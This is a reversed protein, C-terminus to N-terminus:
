RAQRLLQLTEPPRYSLHTNRCLSHLGQLRLFKLHAECCPPSARGMKGPVWEANASCTRCRLFVKPKLCAPIAPWGRRLKRKRATHGWSLGKAKWVSQKRIQLILILHEEDFSWSDGFSDKFLVFKFTECKRIAFNVVTMWSNYLQFIM